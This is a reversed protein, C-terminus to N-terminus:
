ATGERINHGYVEPFSIYIKTNLILSGLPDPDIIWSRHLMSRHDWHIWLPFQLMSRHDWHIRRLFHLCPDIIGISGPDVPIM